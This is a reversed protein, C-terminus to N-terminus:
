LRALGTRLLTGIGADGVGGAHHFRGTLFRNCHPIIKGGTQEDSIQTCAEM